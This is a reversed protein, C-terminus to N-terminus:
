VHWSTTDVPIIQEIDTASGIAVLFLFSVFFAIAFIVRLPGIQEHTVTFGSDRDWTTIGNKTLKNYSVILTILSVLPFGIGFGRWWVKFSRSFATSYDATEGSSPILRIKFLWKGPTTGTTSLFLSEIFVWAFIVAFGFLQDSSQESFADPDLISIAIGSVISILYLDFMRAWYRVWPRVQAVSTTAQIPIPSTTSLVEHPEQLTKQDTAELPAGCHKCFKADDIIEKGCQTCFMSNEKQGLAITLIAREFHRM